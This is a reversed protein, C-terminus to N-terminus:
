GRMMTLIKNFAELENQREKMAQSVIGSLESKFNEFEARLAQYCNILGPIYERHSTLIKRPSKAYGTYELTLSRYTPDVFWEGAPEPVAVAPKCGLLYTDGEYSYQYVLVNLRVQQDPKAGPQVLSRPYIKEVEMERGNGFDIQPLQLHFQKSVADEHTTLQDARFHTEPWQRIHDIIDRRIKNFLTESDYKSFLKLQQM